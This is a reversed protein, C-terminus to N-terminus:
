DATGRLVIAITNSVPIMSQTVLQKARDPAQIQAYM